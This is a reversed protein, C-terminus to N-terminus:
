SEPRNPKPVEGALRKADKIIGATWQEGIVKSPDPILSCLARVFQVDATKHDCYWLAQGTTVEALRLGNIRIHSFPGFEKDILRITKGTVINVEARVIKIGKKKRDKYDRTRESSYTRSQIAEATNFGARRAKNKKNTKKSAAALEVKRMAKRFTDSKKWAGSRDRNRELFSRIVRPWYSGLIAM